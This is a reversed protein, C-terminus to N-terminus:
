IDTYWVGIDMDQVMYPTYWVMVHVSIFGLRYTLIDIFDVCAHKKRWRVNYVRHGMLRCVIRIIIYLQWSFTILVVLGTCHTQLWSFRTICKVKLKNFISVTRNVKFKILEPGWPENTNDTVVSKVEVADGFADSRCFKVM